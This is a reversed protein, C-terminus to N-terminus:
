RALVNFLFLIKVNYIVKEFICKLFMGLVYVECLETYVAVTEYGVPYTIGDKRENYFIIYRGYTFCNTNFDLPPLEPGNKYCLYGDHRETTNSVYLSIQRLLLKYVYFPLRIYM